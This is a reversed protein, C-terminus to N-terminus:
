APALDGPDGAALARGVRLFPRGDGGTRPRAGRGLYQRRGRRDPDEAGSLGERLGGARSGAPGEQGGQWQSDPPAGRAARLRGTGHRGAAAGALLPPSYRGRTGVDGVVYAVLRRDSLGGESPDERVVAAAARVGPLATLAAEIEGLEIRIGRVKVQHDLRGVFDLAGDPLARVLDGTRYLRGGPQGGFPDPVYREATLGPRRLYGRTVGAGGVLLEGAVGVPLPWLERDVVYLRSNAIPRGIPVRHPSQGPACVWRTTDITIETPGYMNDLAVPLRALARDRLEPRLAEGGAFIQRLSVCSEVDGEALFAALMSPVFDVLTVHHERIVRALYSGDGERGPEAVVLRAGACLAAFCEWVAVDFGPAAKQLFVDREDLGYVEKAWRLRNSVGRHPVMVGKPRGTSGSTYIVYALNGPTAGAGLPWGMDEGRDLREDLLVVHRGEAPLRELLAEQVLLVQAGSDALLFALRERPHGPDLPLWAGGAELVALMGVVLAPSREACLGVVADPGVGLERLNRALRRASGLLRRYTLREGGMEVAVADPTRAAQAAVDEHLCKGEALGEVRTDNWEVLLQQREAPALLPLDAISRATAMGALLTALHHLLRLMADEALRARDAALHLSIREALTTLTLTVPYNTTEFSRLDAIRLGGIGGLRFAAPAAPAAM